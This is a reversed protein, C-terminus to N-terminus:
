KNEGASSQQDLKLEIRGGWGLAFALFAFAEDLDCGRATAVLDIPTYKHPGDGFDNIGLPHIKLNLKRRDVPLGTSSARWTAVAEYGARTRRCRYLGLAPVWAELNELAHNNLSRHPTIDDGSGSAGFLVREPEHEFGFPALAEGIAAIHATTIEPLEDPSVDDLADPGIWQYRCGSPRKSPPLVTQRGPGILDCARYKKGEADVVNWSKSKIIDPGRYFRTSGKAGKKITTTTPIAAIIAATVAADDTDVDVGVARWGAEDAIVGIGADPWTSWLQLDDHTPLEHAYKRWNPMPSWAVGDFFGPVKDGPKVPIASYEREILRPGHQAYPSPASM